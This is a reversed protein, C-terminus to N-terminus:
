GNKVAYYVNYGGNLNRVKFGLQVLMRYAIYGRQGVVCYIIYAKSTDLEDIRGRLQDLPIHIHEVGDISISGQLQVEFNERVDLLIETAPDINDIEDWHITELDGRLMNAAVFGAMNVPDKASSYPPAYALELEEMDFVTLGARIATALVDIRKDTGKMGVIQAGLIEGDEPGFILKIDMYEAGPYYSANSGNNTYSTMYPIDLRQLTKESNGTLAVTLDFVKVIASGQTGKYVSPRGFINDAAIRGQKNAPGALPMMAPQSNVLDTVEVVDGAAYINPDSTRMTGDTRIGGRDGLELGAKKALENNPRVGISLIVMDTLLEAGGQTTVVTKGDRQAFSSVGDGLHLRIGKNRMHLQVISAMERDLPPLIQDLMEVIAVELGRERLNEAMELGIFGGGIVVASAPGNDDIFAKIKDSDPITWLTFITDMDMGKLPPKIPQGGPSLIIRDYSETYTLGTNHDMVEVQKAERDIGVVESMTRVDINFRNRLLEPRTVILSDRERINGGIYYPLGCNAFSIYEGREFLIIEAEESLRRARTAASAGAAVGGIILVKFSM